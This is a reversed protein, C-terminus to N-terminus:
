VHNGGQKRDKGSSPARSSPAAEASQMCGCTGWACKRGAPQRVPSILGEIATRLGMLHRIREDIERLHRGFIKRYEPQRSPCGKSDALALLERIDALALGFLRAHHIFCLRGVDAESYVRHGGTHAGGNSRKAKPILGIEEYYRITKVSLESADAAKGILLNVRGDMM